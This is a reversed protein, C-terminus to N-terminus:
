SDTHFLNENKLINERMHNVNLGHKLYQFCAFYGESSIHWLIRLLSTFAHIDSILNDTSSGIEAYKGDM